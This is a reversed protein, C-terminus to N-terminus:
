HQHQQQGEGRLSTKESKGNESVYIYLVLLRTIGKGYFLPLVAFFIFIETLCFYCRVNKTDAVALIKICHSLLLFKNKM